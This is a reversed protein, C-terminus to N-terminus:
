SGLYDFDICPAMIQLVTHEGQHLSMNSGIAKKQMSRVQERVEKYNEKGNVHTQLCM